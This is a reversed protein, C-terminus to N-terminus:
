HLGFYFALAHAATLVILAIGLRASSPLAFALGVMFIKHAVFLEHPRKTAAILFQNYSVVPLAVALLLLVYGCARRQSPRRRTRVLDILLALALITVPLAPLQGGMRQHILFRLPATAVVLALFVTAGFQADRALFQREADSPRGSARLDVIPEGDVLGGLKGSLVALR